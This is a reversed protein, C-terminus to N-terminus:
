IRGFQKDLEARTFVLSTPRGHPCHHTNEVLHRQALLAAVEAPSLRDGAKIAAKCAVMHLLEDLLDRTDPARGGALVNDIASRLVEAPSFNALMAPYSQVLITDGGFAEIGIGLQALLPKHELAAACEAPSLDVPEPVLLAQREVVGAAVKARLQEYLIREHLAHQDIVEIGADNEAILYRDHVQLAPYSRMPNPAAPSATRPAPPIAAPQTHWDAPLPNLQLPTRAELVAGDIPNEPQNAQGATQWSEVQGQAWNVLEQRLQATHGPDHAAAAPSSGAAADPAPQLKSNLDTSLFRTRLTGLLQSYVRGGDQFRVELKTPHVNVDVSDAPLRFGLFAVPYRGTMLLGRYAEGLAHQLARDRIHRGNLFFYQMRPHSRNHSPPAVFGSLEIRGDHSEVAILSEALEQGFFAAIRSRWSDSAPLDFLTRENHRLTMHVHAHALALRTFAESVHGLETPPTRLFKKRVPTNYFLNRVEITTGVPGGCPVAASMQGGVVELRAAEDRGARRSRIELRSVEAISALAEGRFGLTGVRFLDDADRIKSTAHSAVALELEDPEIGHGNDSVRVVDVGGGEVTVDVRTAGADLSNELLEKVVSAPREIVEGAAIKNVVSASLRRISGTASTELTATAHSDM